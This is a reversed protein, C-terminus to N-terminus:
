SIPHADKHHYVERGAADRPCISCRVWNGSGWTADNGPANRADRKEDTEIRLIQMLGTAQGKVIPQHWECRRWGALECDVCIVEGFLTRITWPRSRVTGGTV